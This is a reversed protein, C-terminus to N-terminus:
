SFTELVFSPVPVELQPVEPVSGKFKCDPIPNLGVDEVLICTCVYRSVGLVVWGSCGVGGVVMWWVVVAVVMWWVVVALVVWWVVVALM